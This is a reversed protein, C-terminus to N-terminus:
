KFNSGKSKTNVFFSYVAKGDVMRYALVYSQELKDLRDEWYEVEEMDDSDEIFLTFSNLKVKGTTKEICYM